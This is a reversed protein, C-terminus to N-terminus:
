REYFVAALVRGHRPDGLPWLKVDTVRGGQGEVTIVCRMISDRAQDTTTDVCEVTM